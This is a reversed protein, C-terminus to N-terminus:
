SFSYFMIIIIIIAAFFKKIKWAILYHYGSYIKFEIIKLGEVYCKIHCEYIDELRAFGHWILVTYVFWNQVTQWTQPGTRGAWCVLSAQLQISWLICHVCLEMEISWDFHLHKLGWLSQCRYNPLNNRVAQESSLWWESSWQVYPFEVYTAETM